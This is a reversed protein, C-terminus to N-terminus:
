ISCVSVSQVILSQRDRITTLHVDAPYVNISVPKRPAPVEAEKKEEDASVVQLGALGIESLLKEEANVTPPCVLQSLIGLSLSGLCVAFSWATQTRSLYRSM